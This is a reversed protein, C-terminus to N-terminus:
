TLCAKKSARGRPSAGGPPDSRMGAGIDAALWEPRNGTLIAVSQGPQVGIARWGLGAAAAQRECRSWTVDHWYGLRKVRLAVRNPSSRARQTLLNPLGAADGSGTATSPRMTDTM